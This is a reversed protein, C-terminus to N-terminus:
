SCRRVVAGSIKSFINYWFEVFQWEWRWQSFWISIYFLKGLNSRFYLQQCYTSCWGWNASCLDSVSILYAGATNGTKNELFEVNISSSEVLFEQPQDEMALYRFKVLLDLCHGLLQCLLCIHASYVGLHLMDLLVKTTLQVVKIITYDRIRLAM